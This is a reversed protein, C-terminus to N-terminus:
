GTAYITYGTFEQVKVFLTLNLNNQAIFFDRLVLYKIHLSMLEQRISIHASEALEEIYGWDYFFRGTYFSFFPALDTAGTETTNMHQQLWSTSQQFGPVSVLGNTAGEYTAQSLWISEGAVSGLLLLILWIGIITSISIAPIIRRIRIKQKLFLYSTSAGIGIIAFIPPAWEVM